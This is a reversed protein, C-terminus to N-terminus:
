FGRRIRPSTASLTLQVPTGHNVDNLPDACTAIAVTHPERKNAPRLPLAVLACTRPLPLPRPRRLVRRHRPLVTHPAYLLHVGQELAHVHSELLPRVHVVSQLPLPRPRGCGRPPALRVSPPEPEAPLASHPLAQPCREPVRRLLVRPEQLVIVPRLRCPEVAFVERRRLHAHPLRVRLPPRPDQPTAHGRRQVRSIASRRRGCNVITRM